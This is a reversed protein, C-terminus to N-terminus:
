VQSRLPTPLYALAIHRHLNQISDLLVAIAKPNLLTLLHDRNRSLWRESDMYARIMLRLEPDDNNM